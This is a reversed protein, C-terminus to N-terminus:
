IIFVVGNGGGQGSLCFIGKNGQQQLSKLIDRQVEESKCVEDMNSVDLGYKSAVVQMNHIFLLNSSMVLINVLIIDNFM